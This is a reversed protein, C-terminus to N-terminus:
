NYHLLFFEELSAPPYSIDRVEMDSLLKLIKNLVDQDRIPFRIENGDTKAEIKFEIGASDFVTADVNEIIATLSRSVKKSLDNVNEVSVLSGNSIIAVRDCIKQVEDLNHSSFFITKGKEKEELILEYLKQQLLPDLGSSPEDLILLNPDHMFALIIGLKQKNGHSLAQIKKNTELNFRDLLEKRMKSPKKRLTEVYDLLNKVSFGRPYYLEGPLYGIDEKLYSSDRSVIENDIKIFGSNPILINLICRITTTKGAGNPGLFGFIEGKKIKLTLNKIGITKGYRKTLNEIDIKYPSNEM